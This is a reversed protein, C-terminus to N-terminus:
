REERGSRYRAEQMVRLHALKKKTEQVNAYHITIVFILAIAVGVHPARDFNHILLLSLFVVRFIDNNFLNRLWGPLEVRSLAFGYATVFIALIVAVYDNGLINNFDKSTGFEM